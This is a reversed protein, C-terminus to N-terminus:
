VHLQGVLQLWRRRRLVVNGTTTPWAVFCNTLHYGFNPWCLFVLGLLGVLVRLTGLEKGPLSAALFYAGLVVGWRVTKAATSLRYDWDAKYRIAWVSLWIGTSKGLAWAVHSFIADIQM